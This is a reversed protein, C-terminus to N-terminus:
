IIQRCFLAISQQLQLTAPSGSATALDAEGFADSDEKFNNWLKRCFCRRGVSMILNVCGKIHAAKEKVVEPLDGVVFLACYASPYGGMLPTCLVSVGAFVCACARICVSVRARVCVCVQANHLTCTPYHIPRHTPNHIDAISAFDM